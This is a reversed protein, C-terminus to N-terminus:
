DRSLAVSGSCVSIINVRNKERSVFAMIDKYVSRGFLRFSRKGLVKDGCFPAAAFAAANLSLSFVSQIKKRSISYTVLDKVRHDLAGPAFPEARM